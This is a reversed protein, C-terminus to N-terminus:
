GGEQPDPLGLLQSHVGPPDGIHTESPRYRITMRGPSMLEADFEALAAPLTWAKAWFSGEPATYPASKAGSKKAPAKKSDSM